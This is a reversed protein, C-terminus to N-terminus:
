AMNTVFRAIQKTEADAPERNGADRVLEMACMGGLRAGRRGAGVEEALRARTRRVAQWHRYFPWCTTRKSLRLSPWRQRLVATGASRAESRARERCMWSKPAGPSRAIPMGGGLSNAMTVLDPEIGFHESAFM